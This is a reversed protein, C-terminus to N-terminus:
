VQVSRSLGTKLVSEKNLRLTNRLLHPPCQDWSSCSDEALSELHDNENTPPVPVGESPGGLVDQTEIITTVDEQESREESASMWAVPNADVEMSTAADSKPM